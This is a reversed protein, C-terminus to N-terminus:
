RVNLNFNFNNALVEQERVFGLDVSLAHFGCSMYVTAACSESVHLEGKGM